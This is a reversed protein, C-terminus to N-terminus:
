SNCGGLPEIDNRKPPRRRYYLTYLDDPGLGGSYLSVLKSNMFIVYLVGFSQWWRPSCLIPPGDIIKIAERPQTNLLSARKRLLAVLEYDENLVSRSIWWSLRPHTESDINSPRRISCFSFISVRFLQSM